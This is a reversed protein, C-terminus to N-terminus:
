KDVAIGDFFYNKTFRDRQDFNLWLRRLWRRRDAEEWDEYSTRSHFTVHNNLWQIDGEQFDMSLCLEESAALEDIRDLLRIHDETLKPAGPYRQGSEIFNRLYMLSLKEGTWGAISCVWYDKGTKRNKEGRHDFWLPEYMLEILEPNEELIKNYISTSSVLLSAGGQKATRLCLLGVVDAGDVHFPAAHNTHYFRSDPNKSPDTSTMNRVDGLLQGAHNQEVPTGLHLGLGWYALSSKDVGWEEVPIGRWLSFGLGYELQHKLEEIKKTLTPLPFDEKTISEYSTVNSDLKLIANEIEDLESKKLHYVWEDSKLIDDKKWASKGLFKDRLIM